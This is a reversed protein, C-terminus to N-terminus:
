VSRTLAEVAVSQVVAAEAHQTSLAGVAPLLPPPPACKVCEEDNVLMKDTPLGIMAAMETEDKTAYVKAWPNDAYGYRRRLRRVRGRQPV